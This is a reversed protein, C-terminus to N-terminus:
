IVSISFSDRRMHKNSFPFLSILNGAIPVQIIYKVSELVMWIHQYQGLVLVSVPWIYMSVM